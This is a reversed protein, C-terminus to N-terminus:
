RFLRLLLKGLINFANLNSQGKNRSYSTYIVTIPVEALRLNHRKIEAFFESSVEMQQTKIEILQLAKKSFARFGSQSDTTWIGFLIWTIANSIWSIIQRDFPMQGKKSLTRTGIVVDAKNKKLPAIAKAIDTPSHQGDADFTVAIDYGGRKAYELGTSLAGGLGRNLKHQLAVVRAKQVEQYTNDVSGDDVVVIDFNGSHKLTNKLNTLTAFIVKGENYAPVIILHNM